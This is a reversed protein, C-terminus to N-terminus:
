KIHIPTKGSHLRNGSTHWTGPALLSCCLRQVLTVHLHSHVAIHMSPILDLDEPLEAPARLRQAVKGAGRSTRSSSCLSLHLTLPSWVPACAHGQLLLMVSTIQPPQPPLFSVTQCGALPDIISLRSSKCSSTKPLCSGALAAQSCSSAAAPGFGVSCFNPVIM